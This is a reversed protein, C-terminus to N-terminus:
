KATRSRCKGASFSLTDAQGSLDSRLQAADEINEVFRRYSQVMAVIPTQQSSEFVQAIEAVGNQHDLVILFGDPAGIIYDVETRASAPM